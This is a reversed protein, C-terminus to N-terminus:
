PGCVSVALRVRADAATPRTSARMCCVEVVLRLDLLEDYAKAEGRLTGYRELSMQLPDEWANEAVYCGSGRRSAALGRTKLERVAERVILRCTAYRGTLESKTPLQSGAGYAGGLIANELDRVIRESLSPASPERSAIPM